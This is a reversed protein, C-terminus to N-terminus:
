LIMGLGGSDLPGSGVTRCRWLGLTGSGLLLVEALGHVRLVVANVGSFELNCGEIQVHTM